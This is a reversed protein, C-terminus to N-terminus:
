RRLELRYISLETQAPLGAARRIGAGGAARPAPPEFRARFRRALFRGDPAVTAVFPAPASAGPRGALDARSAAWEATHTGAELTWTDVVVGDADFLEVVAVPTGPELDTGGALHSDIALGSITRPEFTAQWAPAEAGLRAPAYSDVLVATPGASRVLAAAALLCALPAPRPTWRPALPRARDLLWGLGAVLVALAAFAAAEDRWGLLALLDGRPDDRAWPYAGLVATGVVLVACWARQLSAAAGAVPAGLAAAAVGAAMAEPAPSVLAAAVVLIAGLAVPWRGGAPPVVASPVLLLAGLALRLAELPVHPQPSLVAVGAVALCVPLAARPLVALGIAGAAFLMGKPLSWLPLLALAALTSARLVASRRPDAAVTGAALAGLAFTSTLTWGPALVAALGGAVLARRAGFGGALVTVAIGALGPLVLLSVLTRAALPEALLLDGRTLLQLGLALPVTVGPEVAGAPRLRGAGDLLARAAAVTLGAVLIVSVVAGRSPGQYAIWIAATALLATAELEGRGRSRGGLAAVVALVGCTLLTLFASEARGAPDAQTATFAALAFFAALPVAYREIGSLAATSRTEM